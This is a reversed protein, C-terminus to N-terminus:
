GVLDTIPVDLVRAIRPLAYLPPDHSGAEFKHLVDRSMGARLHLQEHTIKRHRAKRIRDGNPTHLTCASCSM